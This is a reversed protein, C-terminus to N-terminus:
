FVFDRGLMEWSLSVNGVANKFHVAPCYWKCSCASIYILNWHKCKLLYIILLYYYFYYIIFVTKKREYYNHVLCQWHFHCPCFLVLWEETCHGGRQKQPPCLSIVHKRKNTEGTKLDLLCSAWLSVVCLLMLLVARNQCSDASLRRKAPIVYPM